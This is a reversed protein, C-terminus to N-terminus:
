KAKPPAGEKLKLYASGLREGILLQSETPFHHTNVNPLDDSSIWAAHPDGSAVQVQAARVANMAAPSPMTSKSRALVFPTTPTGFDARLQAILQRLNAAYQEETAGSLADDIGEDWVFGAIQWKKGKATLEALRRNVFKAWRGYYDPSATTADKNTWPWQPGKPPVPINNAVKIIAIDRLGNAYLTRAFGVEPGHVFFPPDVKSFSAGRHGRIDGWAYSLPSDPDFVCGYTFLANRDADTQLGAGALDEKGTGAVISDAAAMNSQGAFLFVLTEARAPVCTSFAIVAILLAHARSM